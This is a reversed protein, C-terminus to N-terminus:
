EEVYDSFAETLEEVKTWDKAVRKCYWSGGDVALNGCKCEAFNHRNKSRVIEGCVLCKASNSWCDGIGKKRREDKPTDKTCITQYDFIKNM